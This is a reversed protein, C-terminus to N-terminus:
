RGDHRRLISSAPVQVASRASLLSPTFSSASAAFAAAQAACLALALLSRMM